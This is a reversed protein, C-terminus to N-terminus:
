LIKLKNKWIGTVGTSRVLNDDNEYGPDPLIPLLMLSNLRVRHKSNRQIQLFLNLVHNVLMSKCLYM